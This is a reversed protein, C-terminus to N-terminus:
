IESSCIASSEKWYPIMRASWSITSWCNSLIMDRLGLCGGEETSEDDSHCDYIL